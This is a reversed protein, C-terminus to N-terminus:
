RGFLRGFLGKRESQLKALAEAAEGRLDGELAAARELERVAEDVRGADRHELGNVFHLKARYRRSQPDEATLKVLLERAEALDGRAIARVAREFRPGRTRAEDLLARVQEETRGTTPSVPVVPPTLARPKGVPPTESRPRGVPPTESRPRGIPPTESRARPQPTPVTVQIPRTEARSREAWARRRADDALQAYAKRIVLFLETAVDVTDPSERAFRAPHYRKTLALFARRVTERDADPGIDLVQFPNLLSLRALEVRLREAVIPVGAV